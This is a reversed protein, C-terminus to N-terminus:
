NTEELESLTKQAAAIKKDLYLRRWTECNKQEKRKDRIFRLIGNRALSDNLRGTVLIEALEEIDERYINYGYCAQLEEATQLPNVIEDGTFIGCGDGFGNIRAILNCIYMGDCIGQRKYM